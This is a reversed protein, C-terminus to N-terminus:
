IALRKKWDTSFDLERVLEYVNCWQVGLQNCVDPVKRNQRKKSPKSVENTVVIRSYSDSMAYTILFPDKGITELEVENLDPAYGETIVKTLNKADFSENLLLAKKNARDHAWIAHHDSDGCQIEDLIELPIKIKGNNAYFLVWEWFEPVRGLPYYLTHAHILVNADVLFLKEKNAM